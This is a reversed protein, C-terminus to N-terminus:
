TEKVLDDIIRCIEETAGYHTSAQKFQSTNVPKGLIGNSILNLWLSKPILGDEPRWDDLIPFLNIASASYMAAYAMMTTSLGIFLDAAALIEEESLSDDVLWGKPQLDNEKPYKRVMLIYDKGFSKEVWDLVTMTNSESVSINTLSIPPREEPYLLESVLLLLKNGEEIGLKRRVESRIRNKEDISVLGAKELGPHGTVVIWNKPAGREVLWNASADDIVALKDTMPRMRGDSYWFRDIGTWTDLIGLSPIGLEKAELIVSSVADNGPIDYGCIIIDADQLIGKPRSGMSKEAFHNLDFFIQHGQNELADIVPLLVKSIGIERAHVLINSM